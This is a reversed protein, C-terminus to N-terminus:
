VSHVYTRTHARCTVTCVWESLGDRVDFLYVLEVPLMWLWLDAGFRIAAHTGWEVYLAVRQYIGREIDAMEATDSQSVYESMIRSIERYVCNPGGSLSIDSPSVQSSAMLPTAQRGGRQPDRETVASAPGARPVTHSVRSCQLLQLLSARVIALPFRHQRRDRVCNSAMSSFFMYCVSLYVCVCM